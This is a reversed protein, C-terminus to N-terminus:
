KYRTTKRDFIQVRASIGIDGAEDHGISDVACRVGLKFVESRLASVTNDEIPELNECEREFDELHVATGALTSYIIAQAIAHRAAEYFEPETEWQIQIRDAKEATSKRKRMEQLYEHMISQLLPESIQIGQLESRM